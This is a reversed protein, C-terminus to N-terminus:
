KFSIEVRRNRKRGEEKNNPAIPNDSGASNAKIQKQSIGNQSLYEKVYIARKLGLEKNKIPNGINDTHGIVQIKKSTNAKLYRSLNEVYQKLDATKIIKSSNTEFYVTKPAAKIKAEIEKLENEKENAKPKPTDIIKATLAGTLKDNYIKLATSSLQGKPIIQENKIGMQLLKIKMNEARALGLNDYSSPKNDNKTYFGTVEIAKNTNNELYTKIEGFQTKLDDPIVPFASNTGNQNFYVNEGSKNTFSMGSITFPVPNKATVKVPKPTIKVKKPTEPTPKEEVLVTKTECKDKIKCVYWYGSAAYWLGLLLLLLFLLGRM